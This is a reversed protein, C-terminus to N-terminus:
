VPPTWPLIPSSYPLMLPHRPHGDKAPPGICEPKTEFRRLMSLVALYRNRLRPPLKSRPGWAVIVRDAEVIINRLHDDNDPGIPDDVKALVRVDTARLAFLTGVIIRGWRNARAFGKLKRITADDLEADATSPNVMIVATVFGGPGGTNRELRYRYRGCDSIIASL